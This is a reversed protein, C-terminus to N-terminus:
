ATATTNTLFPTCQSPFAFVDSPPELDWHTYVTNPMVGTYVCWAQMPVVGALAGPASYSTVVLEPTLNNDADWVLKSGAAGPCDAGPFVFAYKQCTSATFGYCAQREQLCLLSNHGPKGADVTRQLYAQKTWDQWKYTTSQQAGNLSLAVSSYTSPLCCSTTSPVTLRIGFDKVGGYAFVLCPNPSIGGEVVLIRMVTQGAVSAPPRPPTFEFDIDIPTVRNDVNASGILEDEDFVDNRNFDIFGYAMRPWGSGCTTVQLKVVAPRGVALDAWQATLNRIGLVNPCNSMDRINTTIGDLSVPGLNSDEPVTPGGGCYASVVAVEVALLFALM